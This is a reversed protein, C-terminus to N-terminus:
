VPEQTKCTPAILAEAPSQRVMISGLLASSQTRWPPHRCTKPLGKGPWGGCGDHRMRDLIERLALDSQLPGSRRLRPNRRPPRKPAAPHGPRSGRRQRRLRTQLVRLTALRVRSLTAASSRARAAETPDTEPQLAVRYCNLITHHTAITEAALMGETPNGPRMALFAARIATRRAQAKEADDIPPLSGELMGLLYDAVAPALTDGTGDAPVNM